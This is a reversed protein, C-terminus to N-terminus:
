ASASPSSASPPSATSPQEPLGGVGRRRATRGFRPARRALRPPPPPARPRGGGRRHLRRPDRHVGGVALIVFATVLTAPETQARFRERQVILLTLVGACVVLTIIDAAHLLHLALSAALLTVAVLWSRRQGRLIGRSLMIMAIGAIATLAGAAQVVAVPLYQAILHLHERLPTTVSSLLDIAGALFLSVAALRRIRRVRIHDAAVEPAPPWSAGSPWSAALEAHVDAAKSRGKVVDDTTVLREGMTALPLDAEALLLRVHLEAGTEIELTSEQRHHLFTPPLGLRGRHEHVVESTAGPCAFFGADLHTLEPVLAGGVIVGTAGAELAVRTADLADEGDLQLQDHAIPRAGSPGGAWPAPLGEGGLARWIGRSTIAVVVALVALLVLAIVVTVIFRSPWTATYARQLATQQRPTRFVRGLGDVVFEVRLLLAIVALALPPAWLYRRLRRYLVRSTVFRRALRPDDLREMGALWPRDDTPAADVPPNSDPRLSGARVLVTGCARVPRAHSTSGDRVTVGRRELAQVVAPDRDSPVMVVIVQSDARAAFAGLADALEPHTDVAGSPDDHCGPAVLRGCVIVIGPGQWEELRRAIDRCAARSSDSPESPLLLDGIVEVRRGLAVHLTRDTGADSAPHGLVGTEGDAGM